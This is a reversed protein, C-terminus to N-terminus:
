KRKDQDLVDVEEGVAVGDLVDAIRAHVRGRAMYKDTTMSVRAHGLQDAAIRASLGADDLLTAVTKRFSHSTADAVGLQERVRRWNANFNDPDRWTGTSSPFVMPQEGLFDRGRRDDLVQVVFRPLAVTRLGAASKTKDVRVLGRGAVRVLKGTVALLAGGLDVDVWRLGLLESRRLGTGILVTVPDVLDLRAAAESARLAALLARLEDGTLAAAGRAPPTRIPGVDRVPNGGLVTAMVALHLGGRLLTKCQTALTPGHVTAAKRLGADLRAPTADGVRLAGVIKRLLKANYRYTDLTRDALLGEAARQEIHRDVLDMVLTDLTIEGTAVRREALHAVLADEAARGYQDAGPVPSRREVKRTVGDLDRFRCRARWFGDGLQDRSIRGHQAIRLPPRGAM